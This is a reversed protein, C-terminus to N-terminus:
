RDTTKGKKQAVKVGTIENALGMFKFTRQKGAISAITIFVDTEGTEARFADETAEDLGNLEIYICM